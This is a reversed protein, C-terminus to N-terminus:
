PAAPAGHGSPKLKPAVQEAFLRMSELARDTDQEDRQMLFFLGFDM